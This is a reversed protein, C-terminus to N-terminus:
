LTERLGRGKLAGPGPDNLGMDKIAGTVLVIRLDWTDM